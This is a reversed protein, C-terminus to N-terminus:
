DWELTAPGSGNVNEWEKVKASFTIKEKELYISYTYITGPAWTSVPTETGDLLCSGLLLSYTTGDALTITVKAESDVAQPVMIEVSGSTIGDMVVGKPSSSPTEVTGNVINYTGTKAMNTIKITAGALTVKKLEDSSTTLNFSVKSMLHKFELPVDGTRPTVATEGDTVGNIDGSTGWLIDKGQELASPSSGAPAVARFYSADTQGGWYIVPSYNWKAGDHTVTTSLTPFAANTSNKYVDFGDTKLENAITGKETVDGSFNIESIGDAKVKDWDTITARIIIQQKNVTVDLIYNVGSKMRGGKGEPIARTTTDWQFSRFSVPKSQATGNQIVEESIVLRDNESWADLIGQTVPINYDNGDIDTISALVNGASLVTPVVIAQYTATTNTKVKNYTTVTTPVSAELTAAPANVAAVTNMGRLTLVSSAFNAKDTKFGEGATVNITIKSMAHTFPLVLTDREQQSHGYHIMKQTAAFLLDSHKMASGDAANQETAVTWGLTGATENLATSINGKAELGKANNEGEGGNFCYGYKLRLGRKADRLDKETSSFDDWFLKESLDTTYETETIHDGGLTNNINRTLTFTYIGKFDTDCTFVDEEEKGAELYAVLVDGVEFKKDVARTVPAAFLNTRVEIPTKSGDGSLTATKDVGIDDSSCSAALLALAALYTLKHNM